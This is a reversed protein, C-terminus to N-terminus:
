VDSSTRAGSLTETTVGKTHKIALSRTYLVLVCVLYIVWGIFQLHTPGFLIEVNFMANLLVFWWTGAASEILPTIDYVLRGWGPLLSAEQLDGIGYMVIGAAVFILLYGTVTFFKKLNIVRIGLYVLVGIVIAAILGFGVGLAPELVGQQASSRVTAWIFVATEIGERGVTIAALAVIGRSSTQSLAIAADHEISKAFERAHGSMWFIMWTVFCVAVLSLGGGLLEQAQFSLTYPGWTMYAGIGLPIIAALIVALWVKWLLDQRGVKHIFGILIGVILSAEVGERLAILFTGLFM